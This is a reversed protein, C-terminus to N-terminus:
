MISCKSRGRRGRTSSSHRAHHRRGGRRSSAKDDGVVEGGSSSAKGDDGRGRKRSAVGPPADELALRPAPPRSRAMRPKKPEAERKKRDELALRPGHPRSRAMYSAWEADGEEEEETFSPKKPKAGTRSFKYSSATAAAKAQDAKRNAKALAVLWAFRTPSMFTMLFSYFMQICERAFEGNYFGYYKTRGAAAEVEKCWINTENVYYALQGLQMFFEYITTNQPLPQICPGLKGISLSRYVLRRLSDAREENIDDVFDAPLPQVLVWTLYQFFKECKTNLDASWRHLFSLYKGAEEGKFYNYEEEAGLPKIPSLSGYGKDSIDVPVRLFYYVAIQLLNEAEQGMIPDKRGWPSYLTKYNELDKCRHHIDRSYKRTFDDYLGVERRFYELSRQFLVTIASGTEELDDQTLAAGDRVIDLNQIYQNNHPSDM